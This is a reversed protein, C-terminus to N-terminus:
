LRMMAVPLDAITRMVDADESWHLSHVLDDEFYQAPCHLAPNPRDEKRGVHSRTLRLLCRVPIGLGLASM